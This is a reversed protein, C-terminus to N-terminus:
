KQLVYRARAVSPWARVGARSGGGRSRLGAGSCLKSSLFLFIFTSVDGCRWGEALAAWWLVRM